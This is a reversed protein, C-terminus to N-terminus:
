TPYGPFDETSHLKSINAMYQQAAATTGCAPYAVNKIGSWVERLSQVWDKLRNNLDINGIWNPLVM